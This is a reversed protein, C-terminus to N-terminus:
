LKESFKFSNYEYTSPKYKSLTRLSAHAIKKSKESDIEYIQMTISKWIYGNEGDSM